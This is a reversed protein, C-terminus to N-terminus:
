LAIYALALDKGQDLKFMCLSFGLATSQIEDKKGNVPWLM